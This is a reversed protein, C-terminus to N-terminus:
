DDPLAVARVAQYRPIVRVGDPVNGDADRATRFADAAREAAETKTDGMSVDIWDGDRYRIQGVYATSYANM